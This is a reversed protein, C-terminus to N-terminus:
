NLNEIKDELESIKVVDDVALCTTRGTDLTILSCWVIGINRLIKLRTYHGIIMLMPALIAQVIAVIKWFNAISKINM